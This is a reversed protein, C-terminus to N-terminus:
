KGHSLRYSSSQAPEPDEGTATDLRRTRSRGPKKKVQLSMLQHSSYSLIHFSTIVGQMLTSDRVIRLSQCFGCFYFETFIM